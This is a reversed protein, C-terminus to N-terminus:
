LTRPELGDGGYRWWYIVYSLLELISWMNLCFIYLQMFIGVTTIFISENNYASGITILFTKFFAVEM